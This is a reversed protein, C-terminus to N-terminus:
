IRPLSFSPRNRLVHSLLRCDFSISKEGRNPGILSRWCTRAGGPLRTMQAEPLSLLAVQGAGMPMRLQVSAWSLPKLKGLASSAQGAQKIRHCPPDIHVELFHQLSLGLLALTLLEPNLWSIGPGIAAEESLSDHQAPSM